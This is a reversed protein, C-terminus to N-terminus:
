KKEKKSGYPKNYWAEENEPMVVAVYFVTSVVAVIVNVIPILGLVLAGGWAVLAHRMLFTEDTAFAKLILHAMLGTLCAGLVWFFAFM